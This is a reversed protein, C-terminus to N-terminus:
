EQMNGYHQAERGLWKVPNGELPLSALTGGNWHFVSDLKMRFVVLDAPQNLSAQDQHPNLVFSVPAQGITVVVAIPYIEIGALFQPTEDFHDSSQDTSGCDNCKPAVPPKLASRRPLATRGCEALIAQRCIRTMWTM